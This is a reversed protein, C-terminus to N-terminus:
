AAACTLPSLSRPSIQRDAAWDGYFLSSQVDFRLKIEALLLHGLLHKNAEEPFEEMPDDDGWVPLFCVAEETGLTIETLVEQVGDGLVGTVMGTCLDGVCSVEMTCTSFYYSADGQNQVTPLWIM